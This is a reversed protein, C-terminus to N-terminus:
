IARACIEWAKTKVEFARIRIASYPYKLPANGSKDLEGELSLKECFVELEVTETSGPVPMIITLMFEEPTFLNIAPHEIFNM